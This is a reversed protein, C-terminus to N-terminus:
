CNTRQENRYVGLEENLIEFITEINKIIVRYKKPDKEFKKINKRQEEILEKEIDLLICRYSHYDTAKKLCNLITKVEFNKVLETM